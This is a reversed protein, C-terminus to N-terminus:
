KEGQYDFERYILGAEEIVRRGEACSEIWTEPMDQPAPAVVERVGAQILEVSCRICPAGGWLKGTSVSRAIVYLTAGRTKIGNRAANTICNIEAHVVLKYKTPRDNLREATDLIGRPFGNYGVALVEKDRGVLVAGVQTSPDKSWSAVLLALDIFRKDWHASM